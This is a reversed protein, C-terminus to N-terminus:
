HFSGQPSMQTCYAKRLFSGCHTEVERIVLIKWENTGQLHLCCTGGFAECNGLINYPTTFRYVM